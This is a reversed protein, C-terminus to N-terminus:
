FRFFLTIPIKWNPDLGSEQPSGTIGWEGRPSPKGTGRLNPKNGAPLDLLPSEPM